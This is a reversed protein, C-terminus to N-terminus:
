LYTQEAFLSDNASHTILNLEADPTTTSISDIASFGIAFSDLNLSDAFYVKYYLSLDHLRVQVGDPRLFLTDARDFDPVVQKISDAGCSDLYHYLEPSIYQSDLPVVVAGNLYISSSLDKIIAGRPDDQGFATTAFGLFCFIITSLQVRWNTEQLANKITFNHM